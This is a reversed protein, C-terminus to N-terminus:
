ANASGQKEKVPVYLDISPNKSVSREDHYEFDGVVRNDPEFNSKPLWETFIHKKTLGIAAGWLFRFRPRVTFVAYTRAPIEFAILDEPVSDFATVVDGMLYEWTTNDNRFNKSVAVFAWPDRKNQILNQEKIQRYKKGLTGADRYITKLSTRMSIGFIPLTCTQ